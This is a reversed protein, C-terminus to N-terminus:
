KMINAWKLTPFELSIETQFNAMPRDYSSNNWSVLTERCTDDRVAMGRDM